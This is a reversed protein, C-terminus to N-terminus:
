TIERFLGPQEATAMEKIIIEEKILRLGGKEYLPNGEPDTVGPIEHANSILTETTVLTIISQSAKNTVEAYVYMWDFPSWYNKAIRFLGISKNGVRFYKLDCNQIRPSIEPATEPFLEFITGDVVVCLPGETQEDIIIDEVKADELCEDAPPYGVFNICKTIDNIERYCNAQKKANKMSYALAYHNGDMVSGYYDWLWRLDDLYSYSYDILYFSIRKSGDTFASFEADAPDGHEAFYSEAQAIADATITTFNINEDDREWHDGVFKIANKWIAYYTSRILKWFNNSGNGQVDHYLTGSLNLANTPKKDYKHAVGEFTYEPWYGLDIDGPLSYSFAYNLRFNETREYMHHAVAKGRYSWCWIDYIYNWWREVRTILGIYNGSATIAPTPDDAVALEVDAIGKPVIDQLMRNTEPYWIREKPLEGLPKIHTDEPLSDKPIFEYPPEFGGGKCLVIGLYSGTYYPSDYVEIAPYYTVEERERYEPAGGVFMQPVFINVVDQGFCSLCKIITGDAFHVLRQDQQLKQFSMANKLISLQHRGEGWLQSARFLDGEPIYKITM